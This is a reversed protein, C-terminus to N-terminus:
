IIAAARVTIPKAEQLLYVMLIIPVITHGHRKKRLAVAMKDPQHFHSGIYMHVSNMEKKQTLIGLNRSKMHM